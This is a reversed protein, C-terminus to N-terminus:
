NIYTYDPLQNFSPSDLQHTLLTVDNLARESEDNTMNCSSVPQRYRHQATPM